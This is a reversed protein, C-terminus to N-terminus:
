RVDNGGSKRTTREIFGRLDDMTDMDSLTPLVHVKLGSLLSLTKSATTDTGMPFGTLAETRFSLTRFGLLYYGGDTCPGIVADNEMLSGFAKLVIESTLEPVDSSLALVRDYGNEFLDLFGNLLREGLDAGRQPKLIIGSGVMGIVARESGPPHYLITLPLDDRRLASVEKKVFARYHESAAEDGVSAALRSKVQGPIPAKVVMFAMCGNLNEESTM